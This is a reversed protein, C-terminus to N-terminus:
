PGILMKVSRCKLGLIIVIIVWIISQNHFSKKKFYLWVYFQSFEEAGSKLFIVFFLLFIGLFYGFLNKNWFILFYQDTPPKPPFFWSFFKKNPTKRKKKSTERLKEKRKIKGKAFQSCFKCIKALLLPYKVSVIKSQFQLDLIKVIPWEWCSGRILRFSVYKDRSKAAALLRTDFFFEVEPNSTSIPCSM